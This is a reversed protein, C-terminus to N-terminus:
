ELSRPRIFGRLYGTGERVGAWDNTSFDLIALAGTPYKRAVDALAQDEGTAALALALDEFTPNHGVLLVSGLETPLDQVAALLTWPSAHYFDERIVTPVDTGLARSVLDWTEMAREAASCLVRGPIFENRAMYAGVLPAAKRGRPALPRQFDALSPQDWSSKAHRLLYVTKV